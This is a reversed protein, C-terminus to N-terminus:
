YSRYNRRKRKKQPTTITKVGTIKWKLFYYLKSISLISVIFVVCFRLTGMILIPIGLFKIPIVGITAYIFFLVILILVCVQDIMFIIHKKM